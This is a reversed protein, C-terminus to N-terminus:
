FYARLGASFRVAPDPKEGFLSEYYDGHEFQAAECFLTYRDRFAYSIGLDVEWGYWQSDDALAKDAYLYILAAEFTLGMDSVMTLNIGPAIVGGFYGGGYTLRENDNIDLFDPDFFIAARSNYPLISVFCELDGGQFQDDGSAVFCFLGATFWDSLNKELSIDGFYAHVDNESTGTQGGVTRYDITYQGTQYAGVVSLLTDGVFLDAAVGFYYLTGESKLDFLVQYIFPVSEAFTDNRDSYWIGFLEIREFYGPHVGLTLGVIPSKDMVEAALLEAYADGLNAAISAAWVDDALIFANGLQVSQLGVDMTVHHGKLSMYARIIEAELEDGEDEPVPNQLTVDAGLHGYLGKAVQVSLNPLVRVLNYAQDRRFEWDDYRELDDRQLYNEKVFYSESVDISLESDAALTVGTLSAFLGLFLFLLKFATKLM